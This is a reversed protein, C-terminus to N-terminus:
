LFAVSAKCASFQIMIIWETGTMFYLAEVNIMMDM